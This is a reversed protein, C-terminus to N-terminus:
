AVHLGNIFIYEGETINYFGGNRKGHINAREYNEFFQERSNGSKDIWNLRHTYIQKITDKLM